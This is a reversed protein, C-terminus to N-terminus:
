LFMENFITNLEPKTYYQPDQELIELLTEAEVRSKRENLHVRNIENFKDKIRKLVEKEAEENSSTNFDIEQDENTYKRRRLIKFLQKLIDM